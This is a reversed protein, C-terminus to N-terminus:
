RSCKRFSYTESKKVCWRAPRPPPRHTNPRGFVCRGGGEFVKAPAGRSASWGSGGAHACGASLLSIMERSVEACQTRRWLGPRLAHPRLRPASAEAHSRRTRLRHDISTRCASCADAAPVVRSTAQFHRRSLRLWRASVGGVCRRAPFGSHQSLQPSAAERCNKERMAKEGGARECSCHCPGCLVCSRHRRQFPQHKGVM